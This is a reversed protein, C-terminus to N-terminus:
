LQCVVQGAFPTSLTVIFQNNSVHMVGANIELGGTSMITIGPIAGLNHNVIWTDSASSQTHTYRFVAADRGPKGRPGQRDINISISGVHKSSFESM